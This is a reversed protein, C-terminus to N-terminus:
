IQLWHVLRRVEGVSMGRTFERGEGCFVFNGCSGGEAPTAIKRGPTVFKIVGAGFFARGGKWLLHFSFIGM